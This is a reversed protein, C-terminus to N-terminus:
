FMKVMFVYEGSNENFSKWGTKSLAIYGNKDYFEQLSAGKVEVIIGEAKPSHQLVASEIAKFNLGAAPALTYHTCVLGIEVMTPNWRQKGGYCFKLEKKAPNSLVRERIATNKLEQEAADDSGAYTDDTPTFMRFSAFGCFAGKSTSFVATRWPEGVRAGRVMVTPSTLNQIQEAGYKDGNDRNCFLGGLAAEQQDSTLGNQVSVTFTKVTAL